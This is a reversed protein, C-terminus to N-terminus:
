FFPGTENTTQYVFPTEFHTRLVGDSVEWVNTRGNPFDSQRPLLPRLHYIRMTTRDFYKEEPTIKTQATAGTTISLVIWRSGVLENWRLWLSKLVVTSGPGVAMLDSESPPVITTM